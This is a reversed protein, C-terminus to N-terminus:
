PGADTKGSYMAIGLDLGLRGAEALLTANLEPLSFTVGTGLGAFLLQNEVESSILQLGKLRRGVNRHFEVSENSSNYGVYAQYLASESIRRRTRISGEEIEADNHQDTNGSSPVFFDNVSGIKAIKHTYHPLQQCYQWLNSLKAAECEGTNENENDSVATSVKGLSSLLLVTYLLVTSSGRQQKM